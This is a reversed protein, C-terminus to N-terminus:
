RKKKSAAKKDAAKKDAWEKKAEAADFTMKFPRKEPRLEHLVLSVIAMLVSSKLVVGHDIGFREEIRVCLFVGAAALVALVLGIYQRIFGM